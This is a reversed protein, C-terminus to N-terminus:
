LARKCRVRKEKFIPTVHFYPPSIVSPLARCHVHSPLELRALVFNSAPIMRSRTSTVNAPFIELLTIAKEHRPIDLPSSISRSCTELSFTTDVKGRGRLTDDECNKMRLRHGRTFFLSSKLSHFVSSIALPCFPPLLSFATCTQARACSCM